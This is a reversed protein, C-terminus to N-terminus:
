SRKPTTTFAPARPSGQPGPLGPVEPHSEADKTYPTIGIGRDQYSRSLM